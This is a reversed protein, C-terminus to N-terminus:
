QIHNKFWQLAKLVHGEPLRHECDYFVIEKAEGKILDYFTQAEDVTYNVEYDNRGMLMLVPQGNIVRIFNYPAIASLDPQDPSIPHMLLPAVCATTVKIRSDVGSLILSMTGGLSYGIVGIRNPDIEKRTELYDIARRYDVITQVVMERLRNLKKEQFVMVYTSQFDNFIIREGHYQADLALVAIGEHLLAQTLLHGKHYSNSQWFDEKSLTMGHIQLVCPYPPTGTMPIALYGPVRYDHAGRFVIKEKTFKKQDMKEVVAAALPIDKDYEYFQLIAQFADDELLMKKLEDQKDKSHAFSSISIFCFVLGLLLVLSKGKM